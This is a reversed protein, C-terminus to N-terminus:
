IKEERLLYQDSSTSHYAQKIKGRFNKELQLM